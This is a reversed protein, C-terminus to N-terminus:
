GYYYVRLLKSMNAHITLKSIATMLKLNKARKVLTGWIYMAMSTIEYTTKTKNQASFVTM